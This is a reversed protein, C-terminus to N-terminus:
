RKLGDRIEMLLKDTSSPEAPPPPTAKKMNNYAKVMMFVVFMIIVFNIFDQIFAGYKWLIEKGNSGMGLNVALDVFNVQFIKGIPPMVVNDVFSTIMKGVTAGIIVGTALDMFNGRNIFEKFESIMGM